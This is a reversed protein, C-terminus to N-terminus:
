QIGCDPNTSATYSTGDYTYQFQGPAGPVAEQAQLIEGDTYPNKPPQSFYTASKIIDTNLDEASAPYATTANDIRWTEIASMVNRVNACFTTKKSEEVSRLYRPVALGILIGLILLVILLEVLTFGRMKREKRM